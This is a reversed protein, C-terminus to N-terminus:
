NSVVTTFWKCFEHLFEPIQKKKKICFETFFMKLFEGTSMSCCRLTYCPQPTAPFIDSESKLESRELIESESEKVYLSHIKATLFKTADLMVHFDHYLALLRQKLLLIVLFQVMEVPIGLKPTHCLFHDLQVEPTPTPCFFEVGVGLAALFGVGVGGL